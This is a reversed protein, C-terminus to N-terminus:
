DTRSNVWLQLSFLQIWVKGLPILAIHFVIDRGPNSSTDGHGNGIVIVIVGRAGGYDNIYCLFWWWTASSAHIEKVRERWGDRDDMTGPLDELSCRTDAWLKQLNTRAPFGGVKAWGHLPTWQPVDSILEDKSRWCHRSHRTRRLFLLNVYKMVSVIVCFVKENIYDIFYIKNLSVLFFM